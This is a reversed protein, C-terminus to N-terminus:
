VDLLRVRIFHAKTINICYFSIFMSITIQVLDLLLGM